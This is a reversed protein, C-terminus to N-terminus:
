TSNLSYWDNFAHAAMLPLLDRRQYFYIGAILGFVLASVVVGLGKDWHWSAFGLSSIGLYWSFRRVAIMREVVQLAIARFVLEQAIAATISLYAVVVARPLGASPLTDLYSFQAPLVEPTLATILAAGHLALWLLFSVLVCRVLAPGAHLNEQRIGLDGLGIRWAHRTAAVLGIPAAVFMLFDAVWFVFVGYHELVRREPVFLLACYLALAGFLFPTGRTRAGSLSGSM